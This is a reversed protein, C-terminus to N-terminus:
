FQNEKIGKMWEQGNKMKCTRISEEMLTLEVIRRWDRFGFMDRSFTDPAPRLLNRDLNEYKLSRNLDRDAHRTPSDKAGGAVDRVLQLLLDGARLDLVGVLPLTPPILLHKGDPRLM